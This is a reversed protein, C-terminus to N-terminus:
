AQPTTTMTQAPPTAIPEEFRPGAIGLKQPPRPPEIATPERRLVATTSVEDEVGSLSKRFEVITKGLWGGLQPLKNGFLLVGIVLIIVIDMPGPTFLAYLPTM